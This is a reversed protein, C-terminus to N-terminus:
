KSIVAYVTTTDTKEDYYLPIFYTKVVHQNGRGNKIDRPQRVVIMKQDDFAHHMLPYSVCLADEPSFVNPVRQCHTDTNTFRSMNGKIDCVYWKSLINKEQLAYYHEAAERTKAFYILGATDNDLRNLLGREEERSWLKELEIFFVPRRAQLTELFSFQSGFTTPIGHPKRVYYFYDDEYRKMSAITIM